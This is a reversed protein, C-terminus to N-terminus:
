ESINEVIQTAEEEAEKSTRAAILELYEAETLPTLAETKIEKRSKVLFNNNDKYYFM